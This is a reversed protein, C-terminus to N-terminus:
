TQIQPRNLPLTPGMPRQLLLIPMIFVHSNTSEDIKPRVDRESNVPPALGNPILRAKSERYKNPMM